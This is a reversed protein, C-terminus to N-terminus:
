TPLVIIWVFLNGARQRSRILLSFFLELAKGKLGLGSTRTWGSLLAHDSGVGPAYASGRAGNGPRGSSHLATSRRHSQQEFPVRPLGAPVERYVSYGEVFGARRELIGQRHCDVIGQMRFVLLAKNQKAVGVPIAEQDNNM